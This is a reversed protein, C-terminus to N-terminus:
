SGISRQHHASIAGGVQNGWSYATHSPTFGAPRTGPRSLWSAAANKLVDTVFNGTWKAGKGVLSQEHQVKKLNVYQSELNMRTIVDQLDKNTLTHVGVVKAKTKVLAARKHDESPAAIKKASKTLPHNAIDKAKRIGWHMGKVGYHELHGNVGM